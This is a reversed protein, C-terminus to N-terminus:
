KPQAETEVQLQINTIGVLLTNLVVYDVSDFRIIDDILINTVTRDFLFIDLTVTIEASDGPAGRRQLQQHQAEIDTNITSETHQGGAGPVLRITSVTVTGTYTRLRSAFPRQNM